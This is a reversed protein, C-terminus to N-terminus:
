LTKTKKKLFLFILKREKLKRYKIILISFSSSELYWQASLGAQPVRYLSMNGTLLFMDSWTFLGLDTRVSSSDQM